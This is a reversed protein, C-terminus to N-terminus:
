SSSSNFGGYNFQIKDYIGAQENRDVTVTLAWQSDAQFAIKELQRNKMTYEGVVIHLGNSPITRLQFTLGSLSRRGDLICSLNTFTQTPDSNSPTCDWVYNDYKIQLNFNWRTQNLISCCSWQKSLQDLCCTHDNSCYRCQAYIYPLSLTTLFSIILIYKIM